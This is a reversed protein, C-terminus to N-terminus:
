QAIRVRELAPVMFPQAPTGPHMVQKGFVQGTEKNRLVKANRVRIVHPGSGLEVTAAYDLDSGIRAGGPFYTIKLSDKLDGSDEPCGIQMERLIDEAVPKIVQADIAMDIEVDWSTTAAIFKGM